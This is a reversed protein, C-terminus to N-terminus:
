RGPSPAAQPKLSGSGSGGKHQALPGEPFVALYRVALSFIVFGAAVIALTISAETWSPVYRIGTAVEIATTSVNLRHLVFGLVVMAASPYLWRPNRRLRPIGMLIMPIVVGLGVEMAFLTSALTWPFLEGLAGRQLLDQIRLVGFVALLFVVIRALETLLGLELEKGFARSSLFSEFIVMAFGVALASFFFMVPLLPTFWLPSMKEPVILFL